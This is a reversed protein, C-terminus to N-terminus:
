VRSSVSLLLELRGSRSVSSRRPRRPCVRAVALWGLPSSSSLLLRAGSDWRGRLGDRAPGTLTRHPDYRTCQSRTPSPPRAVAAPQRRTAMACRACRSPQRRTASAVAPSPRSKPSLAGRRRALPRSPPLRPPRRVPRLPQLAARNRRRGVGAMIATATSLHRRRERAEEAGPRHPRGVRSPTGGAEMPRAAAAAARGVSAAKPTTAGPPDAGAPDTARPRRTRRPTPATAEARHPPRGGLPGMATRSTRRRSPAEGGAATCATPRRCCALGRPRSCGRGAGAWATRRSHRPPLAPAWGMRRWRPPEGPAGGGVAATLGGEQRRAARDEVAAM